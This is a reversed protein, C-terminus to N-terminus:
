GLAKGIADRLKLCCSEYRLDVGGKEDVHLRVSTATQQHEPCRVMALKQGVESSLQHFTRVVGTNRVQDLSVERGRVSVLVKVPVPPSM